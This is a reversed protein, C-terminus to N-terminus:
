EEPDVRRPIGRADDTEVMAAGLWSRAAMVAVLVGAISLWPGFAAGVAVGALGIAITLPAWGPRPIPERDIRERHASTPQSGEARRAGLGIAVAAIGSAVGFTTLLVSGATEYTLFWYAGGVLFGGKGVNPFVAYGAARDLLEKLQPDREQMEALAAKADGRLETREARTAPVSTCAPLLVVPLWMLVGIVATRKTFKM